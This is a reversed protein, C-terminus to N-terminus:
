LSAPHNVTNKSMAPYIVTISKKMQAEKKQIQIQTEVSHHSVLHNFQEKAEMAHYWSLGLYLLLLFIKKITKWGQALQHEPNFHLTLVPETLLYGMSYFNM